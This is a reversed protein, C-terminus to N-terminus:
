EETKFTYYQKEAIRRAQVAEEFTAYTGLNIRLSNHQIRAIWKNNQRLNVGCIGSSNDKRTNTNEQNLKNTAQRLNCFRNDSRVRNIHDIQYAPLEGIVYLWALRHASYVKLNISIRVYGKPNLYGAIDGINMRAAKKVKWKFIGTDQDYDLISKIYVQTIEISM